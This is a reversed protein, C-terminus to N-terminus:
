PTVFLVAMRNIASIRALACAIAAGLAVRLASGVLPSAGRVTVNVPFQAESVFRDDHVISKPSPPLSSKVVPM